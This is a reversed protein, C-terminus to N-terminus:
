PHTYTTAKLQDKLRGAHILSRTTYHTLNRFGLAIGRLHELRGNIAETPGNSTHPREFYALIDQSRSTLTKALATIEELGAPIPRTLSDIARQMLFRGLGRDQARYAQILRQYISWTAQVAAHREHAFLEQLRQAGPDTLLDAGTRLTRRARYLPDTKTGRGGTTQRQIRRRCEDLRDGALAIVHFPDMVARAAPLQQAAATKFGTFADMAVVEVGQRWSQDRQALWDQLARGSRGEIVDLLRAPGTAQRVPTLDIVVTVYRQGLRTHRWIHEDVGLVEVGELRHPDDAGMRQARALIASNATHWAVGLAQAVRRM